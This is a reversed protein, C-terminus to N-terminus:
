EHLYQNERLIWLHKIVRSSNMKMEFRFSVQEHSDDPQKGHQQLMESSGIWKWVLSPSITRSSSFEM